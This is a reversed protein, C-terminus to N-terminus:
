FLNGLAYALYLLPRADLCVNQGLQEFM